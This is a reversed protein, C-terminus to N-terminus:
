VANVNDWYRIIRLADISLISPLAKLKKLEKNVEHRDRIDVYLKISLLYPEELAPYSEEYLACFQKAEIFKKQQIQINIIKSFYDSDTVLSLIKTLIEEYEDLLAKQSVEDVLCIKVYDSLLTEYKKLIELPADINGNKDYVSQKLIFLKNQLSDVKHTVVSVAYHSVERDKDHMAALLTDYDGLLDQRIADILISRKDTLGAVDIVDRIPIVDENYDIMSINDSIEERHIEQETLENKIKKTIPEIILKDTVYYLVGFVPIFVVIISKCLIEQKNKGHLFFCICIMLVLVHVSLLLKVLMYETM